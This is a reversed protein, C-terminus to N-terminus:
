KSTDNESQEKNEANMKVVQGIEDLPAQIGLSKLYKILLDLSM